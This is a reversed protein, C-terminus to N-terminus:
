KAIENVKFNPEVSSEIPLISESYNQNSEFQLQARSTFFGVKGLITNWLIIFDLLWSTKPFHRINLHRINASGRSLCTFAFYTIERVIHKFVFKKRITYVAM